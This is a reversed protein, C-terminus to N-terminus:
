RPQRWASASLVALEVLLWGIGGALWAALGIAGLRVLPVDRWLAVLDADIFWTVGIALIAVLGPIVLAYRRVLAIRPALDVARPQYPEDDFSFPERRPAHM